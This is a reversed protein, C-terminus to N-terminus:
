LRATTAAAERRRRRTAGSLLRGDRANLGLLTINVAGGVLELAQVVVFTTGFDGEAALSQLTIACPVLVALGIAAAVATRRQKRRLLPATRGQALSRGTGGAAMMSPVLVFLAVVISTKVISVARETGVLEVTVSAIFFLSILTLALIGAVAHVRAKM